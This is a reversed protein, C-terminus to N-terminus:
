NVFEFRWEWEEEDFWLSFLGANGNFDGMMSRVTIERVGPLDNQEVLKASVADDWKATRWEREPISSQNIYHYVDCGVHDHGAMLVGNRGFGRGPVNSDGSMGFIGELFGKSAEMSLHNQEKVGNDFEGNFFDFFPGDFCVGAKKFMPIHTLVLTFLGPREVEYSSTIVANLFSYTEDQMEKSSAPTDLNMDNLVIIRIQPMPKEKEGEGETKEGVTTSNVPLAFRLEYNAKGFLRTFRAMRLPSLDGAYGIDHNGAVNIIRKKWAEADEGLVLTDQFNESPQSALDDEVKVGGKFVRQWYRWARSGYEQDDIWQNWALM